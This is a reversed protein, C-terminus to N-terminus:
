ATGPVQSTDVQDGREDARQEDGKERRRAGVDKGGGEQESESEHAAEDLEKPDLDYEGTTWNQGRLLVDAIPISRLCPDLCRVLSPLERECLPKALCRARNSRGKSLRSCVPVVKNSM